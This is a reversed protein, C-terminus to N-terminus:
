FKSELVENTEVGFFWALKEIVDYDLDVSGGYAKELTTRSMRTAFGAQYLFEKRDMKKRKCLDQVHNVRTAEFTGTVMVKPTSRKKSQEDM